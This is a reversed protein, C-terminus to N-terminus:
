MFEMSCAITHKPFSTLHQLSFCVSVSQCLCPDDKFERLIGGKNHELAAEILAKGSWHGCGVRLQLGVLFWEGTEHESCSCACSLLNNVPFEPDLPGCDGVCYCQHLSLHPGCPKWRLSCAEVSGMFLLTPPQLAYGAM